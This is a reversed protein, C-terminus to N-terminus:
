HLARRGRRIRYGDLIRRRARDSMKIWETESLAYARELGLRISRPGPDQLILGTRGDDVLGAVGSVLTVVPVVGFAMAELLANSMGESSSPLVMFAADRYIDERRDLTGRITVKGRLDAATIAKEIENRLPGSGCIALHADARDAAFQGFTEVLAPLGKEHELRGAFVFLRSGPPDHLARQTQEPMGCWQSSGCHAPRHHRGNSPRRCNRLQQRCLDDQVAKRSRRRATRVAFETAAVASPRFTRRRAWTQGVLRGSYCQPSLLQHPM